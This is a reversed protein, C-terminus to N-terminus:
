PNYPVYKMPASGDTYIHLTGCKVMVNELEENVQRVDFTRIIRELRDHAQMVNRIKGDNTLNEPTGFKSTFHVDTLLSVFEKMYPLTSLQPLANKYIKYIQRLPRLDSSRNIKNPTIYDLAYMGSFTKYGHKLGCKTNKNKGCNPENCIAKIIDSSNTGSPSTDNFYAYGYDIIKAIYQSNFKVLTGNPYHYVYQIYLDEYPKLLIINELHLDYHTFVNSMMNLATYVQYLVNIIEYKIFIGKSPHILVSYLTKAENVYQMLICLTSASKCTLGVNNINIDHIAVLGNKLPDTNASSTTYSNEVLTRHTLSKYKLLQHTEIFSPFIKNYKNIFQGVLYEYGLNSSTLDISTKLVTCVKYNDRNYNVTLLFGNVGKALPSIQEIYNLDLYNGFYKNIKDVNIGFTICYNSDSCVQKLDALSRLSLSNNIASLIPSVLNLNPSTHLNNASISSIINSAPPTPVRPTTARNRAPRKKSVCRYTTPHREQTATCKKICRRTKPNFDKNHKKNCVDESLVEKVKDCKLTTPNRAEVNEKCKKLCKGSIYEKNKMTCRRMKEAETMKAM